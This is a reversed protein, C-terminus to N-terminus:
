YLSGVRGPPWFRFFAKAQVNRAPLFSWNRSDFSSTRNDGMVFLQGKPVTMIPLTELSHNKVFPEPDHNGNLYVEGQRIEITDGEVAIVRKLFPINDQSVGPPPRFAIIDGRHPTQFKYIFRNGFVRDQEMITPKMSGTPIVYAQIVTAKIIFALVVAILISRAWDLIEAVVPNGGPGPAAPQAGPASAGADAADDAGPEPGFREYEDM